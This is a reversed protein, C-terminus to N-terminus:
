TYLLLAQSHVFKIKHTIVVYYSYRNLFYLSSFKRFANRKVNSQVTESSDAELQVPLYPPTFVPEM